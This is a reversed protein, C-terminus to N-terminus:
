PKLRIVFGAGDVSKQKETEPEPSMLFDGDLELPSPKKKTQPAFINNTPTQDTPPAQDQSATSEHTGFPLSLDLPKEYDDNSKPSSADTDSKIPKPSKKKLQNRKHGTKPSDAKVVINQTAMRRSQDDAQSLGSLFLWSLTLFSVLIKRQNIM